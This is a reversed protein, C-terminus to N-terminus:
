CISCPSRSHPAGCQAQSAAAVSAFRLASAAVDVANHRMLRPMQRDCIIRTPVRCPALFPSDVLTAALARTFSEERILACCTDAVRQMASLVVREHCLKRAASTAVRALIVMRTWVRVSVLLDRAFAEFFCMPLVFAQSDTGRSPHSGQPLQWSPWTQRAELPFVCDSIASGLVAVSERQYSQLRLTTPLRTAAGRSQTRRSDQRQPEGVHEDHSARRRRRPSALTDCPGDVNRSM